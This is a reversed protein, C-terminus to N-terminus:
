STHALSFSLIKNVLVCSSDPNLSVIRNPSVSLLVCCHGIFFKHSSQIGVLWEKYAVYYVEAPTRKKVLMCIRSANEFGEIGNSKM